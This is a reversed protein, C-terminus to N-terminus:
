CSERASVMARVRQLDEASDVDIAAEGNTMLLPVVKAGSRRSLAELGQNLTLRGLLFRLLTVMGLSQIVRVPNKRHAEVHRWFGVADRGRRTLFAFLNCGCYGGDSFRSVTRRTDPSAALVREHTALAIAVDARAILAGECFEDVVASQLLAHDATTVLVPAAPDITALAAIVSKSPTEAGNLRRVPHAALFAEVDAPLPDALGVVVIESVSRSQALAAIVRSVMAVGGVEALAKATVGAAAAVPDAPGRSGALVIAIFQRDSQPQHDAM